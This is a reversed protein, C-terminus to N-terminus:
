DYFLITSMTNDGDDGYELPVVIDDDDDDDGYIIDDDDDIHSLSLFLLDRILTLM